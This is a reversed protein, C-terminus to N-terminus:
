SFLARARSTDTQSQSTTVPMVLVVIHILPFPPSPLLISFLSFLYADAKSRRRPHPACTQSLALKFDLWPYSATKYPTGCPHAACRELAPLDTPDPLPDSDDSKFCSHSDMSIHHRCFIANCSPCQIPLFDLVNCQPLACHEGIQPLDM